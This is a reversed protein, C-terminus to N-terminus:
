SQAPECTVITCCFSAWRDLRPKASRSFMRFVVTRDEPRNCNLALRELKASEEESFPTCNDYRMMDFPVSSVRVTLKHVYFKDAKM